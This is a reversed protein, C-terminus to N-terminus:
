LVGGYKGELRQYNLLGNASLSDIFVAKLADQTAFPRCHLLTARLRHYLTTPISM